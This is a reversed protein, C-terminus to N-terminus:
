VGSALATRIIQLVEERKDGNQRLLAEAKQLLERTSPPKGKGLSCTNKGCGRFTPSPSRDGLPQGYCAQLVRDALDKM